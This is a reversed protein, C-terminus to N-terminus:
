GISALYEIFLRVGTGRSGKPLYPRGKEEWATGAIDLHAWPTGKPVFQELFKGAGITQAERGGANKLDSTEGKMSELYEEWMPLEWCREFTTEGADRLAGILGADNGMLGIAHEGLAIVCGGTLTSIDIVARPNYRESYCLADAMVMRGEADTSIIEVTKGNMARVIDGPKYASGSPLNESSPVLGIVNVPLKLMAAARMAGIVAGGGAMDYKMKEMGQVPKISIGGSDFTIAKGVLVVPRAKKDRAGMYELIIFKAPEVSGSAVGLFAGMGLKKCQAEEMVTCKFGAQRAAKKAQAALMTPTMGNAPANVMDRTFNACECLTSAVAVAKKAGALGSKDTVSLTMSKLENKDPDKAKYSDYTYLGLLAGEAFLAAAQAQGIGPMDPILASVNGIGLRCLTTAAKGGGRRAMDPIFKDKKGMGVLLIRAPGGSMHPGAHLLFTEGPQGKFEGCKIAGSIVGGFTRDIEALAGFPKEGEFVPLAAADSKLKLIDDATVKLVM